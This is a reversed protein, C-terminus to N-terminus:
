ISWKVGMTMAPKLVVPSAPNNNYNFYIFLAESTYFELNWKALLYSGSFAVKLMHEANELGGSPTSQSSKTDEETIRASDMYITTSSSHRDYESIGQHKVGKEGQIRYLFDFRLHSRYDISYYEGGTALVISDPGYIYGSYGFDDFFESSYGVIYDLNDDYVGSEQDYKGNLYLYPNTYVGELYFSLTGFSLVRSYKMNILAGYAAPIEGGKEGFADAQDLVFEGYISFGKFLSLDLGVSMINNAVDFSAKTLDNTYNNYNHNIMFPYFVRLDFLSSASFITGFEVELRVKDLISIDFQHVVREVREENFKARSLQYSNIGNSIERDFSTLSINYSFYRNMFSLLALEQYTFNDGIIMNGTVGGGMSHPYRGFLFSVYKNSIVGIARYPFDLSLSNVPRYGKEMFLSLLRGNYSNVLWGLSSETMHHSNNGISLDGEIYMFSGFAVGIRGHAFPSEYRYPILTEDKRSKAVGSSNSYDFSSYDAINGQANFSLGLDLSMGGYKFLADDSNLYSSIYEYEAMEEATLSRGEIRELVIAIANGTVPSVPTIGVVGVSRALINTRIYLEDRSTFTKQRNSTPFVLSLVVFTIVFISVAKKM